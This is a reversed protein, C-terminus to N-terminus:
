KSVAPKDNTSRLIRLCIDPPPLYFFDAPAPFPRRTSMIWGDTCPVKLYNLTSQYILSQHEGKDENPTSLNRCFTHRSLSPWFFSCITRISWLDATHQISSHTRQTNASDIHVWVALSRVYLCVPHVAPDLFHGRNHWIDGKSLTRRPSPYPIYYLPSTAESNSDTRLCWDGHTEITFDRFNSM